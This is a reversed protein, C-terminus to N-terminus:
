AAIRTYWEALLAVKVEINLPSNEVIQMVEPRTVAPRSDSFDLVAQAWAAPSDQLSLRKVLAPALTVEEPLTDSIVCPLGALQAEIPALGLGEWISPFLFVDMAQLLRAVDRRQGAFIVKDTLGLQSVQREIARRLKGDGVLLLRMEPHRKDVEAAVQVLFEHNKVEMFRGVHGIVLANAPIGWEARLATRDFDARFPELDFGCPSERWRPDSDWDSGILNRAAQRSCFLGLNAYRKIWHTSLASQYKRLFGKKTIRRPEDTHCHSVRGKVGARNALLLHFGGLPFNSHVVDYPGHERLVRLFNRSYTWPNTSYPCRIVRAGLRIAGQELPGPTEDHVLVDIQFKEPDLHRLVQMLWVEIGGYGLQRVTHCIRIKKGTMTLRQFRPPYSVRM